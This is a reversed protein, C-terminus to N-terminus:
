RALTTFRTAPSESEGFKNTPLVVAKYDTNASLGTVTVGLERTAAFTM